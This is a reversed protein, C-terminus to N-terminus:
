DDRAPMPVHDLLRQLRSRVENAAQELAVGAAQAEIEAYAAGLEDRVRAFTSEDRDLPDIRLQQAAAIRESMAWLLAAGSLDGAAHLVSAGISVATLKMVADETAQALGIARLLEPAAGRWDGLLCKVMALNVRESGEMDPDGIGAFAVAAEQHLQAARSLDGRARALQAMVATGQVVGHADGIQKLLANSRRLGAEAAELQRLMFHAHAINGHTAGETRLDGVEHALAVAESGASMTLEFDGLASGIRSLLLLCGALDRADGRARHIAIAREIAQRARPVDDDVTLMAQGRYLRARLNSEQDAVLPEAAEIWRRGERRLGRMSWYRALDAALGPLRDGDGREYLWVLTARINALEADMLRLAQGQRHDLLEEPSRRGLESVYDALRDMAAARADGLADVAFERITELMAFRPEGQGDLPRILSQELLATLGAEIDAGPGGVATAGDLGFSGAFVGLRHFLERDAEPLLEDSWAITARLAQQREPLDRAGGILVPLRKELKEALAALSLLRLRSAALEIALPLGDLRNCIAAVLPGTEATIAFDPRIERARALFLAIAGPLQADTTHPDGASLAPVAHEIEGRIRLPARSTSLLHVKAAGSLLQVVVASAGPLLQELNDLVLLLKRNGLHEGVTQLASRDAREPIRLAAAIADPIAAADTTSGLDVFWAGDPFADIGDAAVQLALRTKGIGGPGLLTVVRHERVLAGVTQLEEDRGIFSSLQVPLNHPRADLSKLPPFETRLDPHQLEYVHEPEHLDKLRHVGRDILQAGAPLHGSVLAATAASVVTQEGYALSQLRAARFLPAGFYHSDRREVAGTHLSIRCALRGGVEAWPDAALARHADLAAAVADAPAAFAVYVADGVTEFIVGHHRDVLEEYIRHHRDLATGAAAGYRELLGTSGELDSFLFTVTGEPLPRQEAPASM